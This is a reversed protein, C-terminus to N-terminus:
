DKVYNPNLKVDEHRASSLDIIYKRKEFPTGMAVYASYLLKREWLPFSRTWGRRPWLKEFTEITNEALEELKTM